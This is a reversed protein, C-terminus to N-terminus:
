VIQDIVDADSEYPVKFQSHIGGTNIWTVHGQYIPKCINKSPRMMLPVNFGWFFTWICNLPMGMWMVRFYVSVGRSRISDVLAKFITLYKSSSTIPILM